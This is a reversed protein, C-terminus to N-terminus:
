KAKTLAQLVAYYFANTSETAGAVFDVDASQRALVQAPLKDIVDCPYLTACDTIAAYVIKGDEITVLAQIDGHRSHGRGSYSGDKYM